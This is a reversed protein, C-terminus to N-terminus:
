VSSEAQIGETRLNTLGQMLIATLTKTVHQGRRKDKEFFLIAAVNVSSGGMVLGEGRPLQPGRAADLCTCVEFM